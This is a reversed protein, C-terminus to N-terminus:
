RLIPKIPGYVLRPEPPIEAKAGWMLKGFHFFLTRFFNPFITAPDLDM